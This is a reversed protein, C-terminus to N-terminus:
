FDPYHKLMATIGGDSFLEIGTIFSSEDSALFACANAVEEPDQLRQLPTNAIWHSAEAPTVPRSSLSGRGGGGGVRTVADKWVGTRTMGPCITNLRIGHPGFDIALARTMAAIGGKAAAYLAGKPMTQRTHVSAINIVSGSRQDVMARLAERCCLFVGRLQISMFWEWEELTTELVPRGFGVGASNVLVDLRGYEEVTRTAMDVVSQESTVDTRVFLGRGAEARCEEQVAEGREEDLDAVVVEAGERVLRLATARGIGSGSGTVVATRGELLM